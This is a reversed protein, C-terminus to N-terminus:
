GCLILGSGGLENHVAVAARGGGIQGALCAAADAGMHRVARAAGAGDAPNDLASRILAAAAALDKSTCGSAVARTPRHAALAGALRDCGTHRVTLVSLRPAAPESDCARGLLVSAIGGHLHQRDPCDILGLPQALGPGACDAAIVFAAPARGTSVLDEALALAALSAGPMGSVFWCPGDLRRLTARQDLLRALTPAAADRDMAARGQRLANLAHDADLDLFSAGILAAHPGVLDLGEDLMFAAHSLWAGHDAPVQDICRAARAVCDHRRGVAPRASSSTRGAGHGAVADVCSGSSPADRAPAVAPDGIDDRTLVAAAARWGDPQMPSPDVAVVVVADARGSAILLAAMDLPAHGCDGPLCIDPGSIGLMEAVDQLISGPVFRAVAVMMDLKRTEAVATGSAVFSERFRGVAHRDAMSTALVLGTRTGDCLPPLQAAAGMAAHLAPFLRRGRQAYRARLAAVEHDAVWEGYPHSMDNM